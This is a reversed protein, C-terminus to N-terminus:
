DTAFQRRRAGIHSFVWTRYFGRLRARPIDRRLRRQLLLLNSNAGIWRHVFGREAIFDLLSM